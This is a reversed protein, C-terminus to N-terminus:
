QKHRVQHNVMIKLRNLLTRKIRGFENVMYKDEPENMNGTAEMDTQDFFMSVAEIIEEKTLLELDNLFKQCEENRIYTREM